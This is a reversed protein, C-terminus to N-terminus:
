YTHYKPHVSAAGRIHKKVSAIFDDYSFPKSIYGDAGMELGKHIENKEANATLFVFPITSTLPAKKLEILVEYGNMVPMQIDCLILQPLHETAMILGGPGDNAVLAKYGELELMECINERIELNDEILLIADM